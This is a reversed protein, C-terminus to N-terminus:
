LSNKNDGGGGSEPNGPKGSIGDLVRSSRARDVPQPRKKEVIPQDATTDNQSPKTVPRDCTPSALLSRIKDGAAPDVEPIWRGYVKRIMGWDAHGMQQAVWMPNEGASLLTSAYTHRTQYPYRYCGPGACFTRGPPRASRHMRGRGPSGQARTTSCGPPQLGTHTRQAQLAELAPPLLM